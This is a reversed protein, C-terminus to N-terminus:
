FRFGLGAGFTAPHINFTAVTRGQERLDTASRHWRVDINFLTRPSLNFDAGVQLAPGFSPTLDDSDLAGSKEWFFTANVGAGAYPRVGRSPAWRWRVLLTLPLTELSGLNVAVGDDGTREVERAQPSVALEADWRPAIRRQLAIELAVPSYVQWGEPESSESGGSIVASTRFTWLPLSEADGAGGWAPGALAAAAIVAATLGARVAHPRVPAM